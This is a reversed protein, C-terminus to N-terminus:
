LTHFDPANRSKQRSASSIVKVMQIKDDDGGGDDDDSNDDDPEFTLISVVSRPKSLM